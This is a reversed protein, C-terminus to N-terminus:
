NEIMKLKRDLSTMKQDFKKPCRSSGDIFASWDAHSNRDDSRLTLMRRNGKPLSIHRHIQHSTQKKVLIILMLAALSPRYPNIEVICHMTQGELGSHVFMIAKDTLNKRTFDHGHFVVVHKTVNQKESAIEM